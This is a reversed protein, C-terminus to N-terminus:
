KVGAGQKEKNPRHRYRREGEVSEPTVQNWRFGRIIL